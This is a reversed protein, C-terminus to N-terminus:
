NLLFLLPENIRMAWYQEMHNHGDFKKTVWNEGQQYGMASMFGDVKNQHPEYGEDLGETGFDFYIKHTSPDPLNQEVHSIFAAGIEPVIWHTSVCGAAGFVDPYEMIAYLSILGGM